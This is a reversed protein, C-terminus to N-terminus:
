PCNVVFNVIFFVISSITLICHVYTHQCSLFFLYTYKKIYFTCVLAEVQTLKLSALDFKKKQGKLIFSKSQQNSLWPPTMHMVKVLIQVKVKVHISYSDYAYTVSSSRRGVPHRMGSLHHQWEWAPFWFLLRDFLVIHSWLYRVDILHICERAHFCLRYAWDATTLFPFPTNLPATHNQKQQRQDSFM